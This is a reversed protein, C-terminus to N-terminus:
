RIRSPGAALTYTCTSDVLRRASASSISSSPRKGQQSPKSSGGRGPKLEASRWKWAAVSDNAGEASAEAAAIQLGQPEHSHVLPPGHGGHAVPDEEPVPALVPPVDQVGLDLGPAKGAGALTANNIPDLDVGEGHLRHPFRDGEPLLM